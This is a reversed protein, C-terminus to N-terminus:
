PAVPRFTGGVGNWTLVRTNRLRPPDALPEDM